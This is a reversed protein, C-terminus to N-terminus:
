VPRTIGARAYMARAEPSLETRRRELEKRSLGGNPRDDERGRDDNRPGDRLADFANSCFFRLSHGQGKYFDCDSKLYDTWRKKFGDLTLGKRRFLADLQSFDRAFWNPAENFRSRYSEVAFERAAAADTAYIKNQGQVTETPDIYPFSEKTRDALVRRDPRSPSELGMQESKRTRDAKKKWSWKKSNVVEIISGRGTQAARIFGELELRARWRNITKHCVGLASAADSDPRPVGGFVRGITTGDEYYEKTTRDIYFLYLWLADGLRRYEGFIENSVPFQFHQQVAPQETADNRAEAPNTVM